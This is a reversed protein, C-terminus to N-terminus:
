FILRLPKCFNYLPADFFTAYAFFMKHTQEHGDTQRMKWYLLGQQWRDTGKLDVIEALSYTNACSCHLKRWFSFKLVPFPEFSYLVWVEDNSFKHRKHVHNQPELSSVFRHEDTVKHTANVDKWHISWVHVSSKLRIVYKMDNQNWGQCILWMKWTKM